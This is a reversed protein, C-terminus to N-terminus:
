QGLRFMTFAGDMRADDGSTFQLMCADDSYDMFNHIPDLGVGQPGATCTNRGIPCGSAASREAPTDAIRDNRFSCAGQFTHLLGMWHGIEHTATDGENYPVASGGPLSSYLVVVGDQTPQSSYEWPFTAWGLLGGGPNATYINLDDATGLRLSAKAQAETVTGPEMAYWAPNTTRDVSVLSFSWGTPSYANNLVTMQDQIMADPVDGNSIGSGNNIVHFHVDITGGTALTGARRHEEIGNAVFAALLAATTVDPTVTACRAGSDIFAQQSTWSRNGLVFPVQAHASGALATWALLGAAVRTVVMQRKLKM